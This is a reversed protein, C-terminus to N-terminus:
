FDICAEFLARYQMATWGSISGMHTICSSFEGAEMAAINVETMRSVVESDVIAQLQACTYVTTGKYHYIYIYLLCTYTIIKFIEIKLYVTYRSVIACMIHKMIHLILINM